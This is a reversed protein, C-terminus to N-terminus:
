VVVQDKILRRVNDTVRFPAGHGPIILQALNVIKSRSRTQHDRLKTDGLDMWISPNAIDEEKEFLDGSPVDYRNM